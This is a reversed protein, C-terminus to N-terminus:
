PEGQAARRKHALTIVTQGDRGASVSSVVLLDRGRVYIGAQAGAPMMLQWGAGALLANAQQQADAPHATSRATALTLGSAENALAQSVRAAPLEPM